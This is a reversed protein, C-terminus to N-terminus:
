YRSAQFLLSRTRCQRVNSVFGADNAPQSTIPLAFTAPVYIGVLSNTDSNKVANIFDNLIPVNYKEFDPWSIISTGTTAIGTNQAHVAHFGIGIGLLIFLIIIGIIYVKTNAM